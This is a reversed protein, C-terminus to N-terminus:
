GPYETQTVVLETTEVGLSSNKAITATTIMKAIMKTLLVALTSKTTHVFISLKLICKWKTDNIVSDYDFNGANIGLALPPKNFM